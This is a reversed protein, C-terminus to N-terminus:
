SLEFIKKKLQDIERSIEFIKMDEESLEINPSIGQKHEEPNSFRARLNYVSVELESVARKLKTVENNIM